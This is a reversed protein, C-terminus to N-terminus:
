RASAYRGKRSLARFLENVLQEKDDRDAGKVILHSVGHKKNKVDTYQNIGTNKITLTNNM